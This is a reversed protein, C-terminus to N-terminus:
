AARDFARQSMGGCDNRSSPSGAFGAFTVAIGECAGQGAVGQGASGDVTLRISALRSDEGDVDFDDM